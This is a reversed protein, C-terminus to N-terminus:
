PRAGEGVFSGEAVGDVRCLKAGDWLVEVKGVGRLVIEEM